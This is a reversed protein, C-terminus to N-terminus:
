LKCKCLIFHHLYNVSYNYVYHVIKLSVVFFLKSILVTNKVDDNNNNQNQSSVRGGGDGGGGPAESLLDGDEQDQGGQQGGQLTLRDALDFDARCLLEEDRLAFEQGSTLARGCAACSFCEVHFILHKARMVLDNRDFEDGCKVCKTTFLRVVILM